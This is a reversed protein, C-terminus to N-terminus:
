SPEGSDPAERDSSPSISLSLLALLHAEPPTADNLLIVGHDVAAMLSEVYEFPRGDREFTTQTLRIIPREREIRLQRAEGLSSIVPEAHLTARTPVIGYERALTSYLPGVEHRVGIDPCRAAPLYVTELVCPPSQAGRLRSLRTVGVDAPLALASRVDPTVDQVLPTVSWASPEHGHPSADGIAKYSAREHRPAVFTGRGGTRILVGGRALIDLGARVTIRSVQFLDSLERESPLRSAAPWTGLRIQTRIAEALQLSLTVPSGPNLQYPSTRPETQPPQNATIGALSPTRTDM